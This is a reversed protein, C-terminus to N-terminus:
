PAVLTQRLNNLRVKLIKILREGEAEDATHPEVFGARLSTRPEWSLIEVQLRITEKMPGSAARKHGLTQSPMERQIVCRQSKSTFANRPLAM